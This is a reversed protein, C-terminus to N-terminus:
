PGSAQGRLVHELDQQAAEMSGVAENELLCSSRNSNLTASGSDPAKKGGPDKQSLSQEQFCLFCSFDLNANWKEHLIWSRPHFFTQIRSSFITPDPDPVPIRSLVDGVQLVPNSLSERKTWKPSKRSLINNSSRVSPKTYFRNKTLTYM